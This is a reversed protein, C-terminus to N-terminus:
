NSSRGAHVAKLLAARLRGPSVTNKILYASAGHGLTLDRSDRSEDSTLIVVPIKGEVAGDVALFSKYGSTEPLGLDLLVVEIGPQALRAIADGLNAAWELHFQACGEGTLAFIYSWAADDNDEVLLLEIPPEFPADTRASAACSTPMFRRIPRARGLVM